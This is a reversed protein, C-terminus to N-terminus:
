QAVSTNKDHEAYKSHRKWIINGKAFVISVVMKIFKCKLLIYYM